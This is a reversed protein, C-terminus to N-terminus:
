EDPEAESWNSPSTSPAWRREDMGGKKSHRFREHANSEARAAIDVSQDARAKNGQAAAAQIQSEDAAQDAANAARAAAVRVQLAADLAVRAAAQAAEAAQETAEAAKMVAAALSQAGRAAALDREAVRWNTLLDAETADSPEHPM